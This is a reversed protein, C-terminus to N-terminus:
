RTRKKWRCSPWRVDSPPSISWLSRIRLWRQRNTRMTGNRGRLWSRFGATGAASRFRDTTQSCKDRVPLPGDAKGVAVGELNRLLLAVRDADFDCSDGGYRASHVGPEGGLADVELGSDDALTLMGSMGAYGASKLWANEAFTDGTEEVESTIGVDRLSVLEYSAGQLLGSYERLKGQNGTAVLLRPKDTM